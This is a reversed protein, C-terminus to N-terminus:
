GGQYVLVEPHHRFTSVRGILVWDNAVRYLEELAAPLDQVYQLVGSVFVLGFTSNGFPINQITGAVFRISKSSNYENLVEVISHDVDVGVCSLGTLESLNRTWEGNLCGVDLVEGTFTHRSLIDSLEIVYPMALFARKQKETYSSLLKRALSCDTGIFGETLLLDGHVPISHMFYITTNTNLCYEKYRKVSQNRGIVNDRIYRAVPLIWIFVNRFLAKINKVNCM